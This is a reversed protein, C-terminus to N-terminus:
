AVDIASVPRGVTALNIPRPRVRTFFDSSRMLCNDATGCDDSGSGSSVDDQAISSLVIDGTVRQRTVVKGVSSHANLLLKLLESFADM